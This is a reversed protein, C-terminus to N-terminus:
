KNGTSACAMLQKEFLNCYLKTVQSINKQCCITLFRVISNNVYISGNSWFSKVIYSITGFWIMSSICFNRLTSYIISITNIQLPFDIFLKANFGLLMMFIDNSGENVDNKYRLPALQSIFCMIYISKKHFLQKKSVTMVLFIFLKGWNWVLRYLHGM